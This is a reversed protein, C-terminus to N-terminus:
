SVWRSAAAGVLDGVAEVAAGGDEWAREDLTALIGDAGADIVEAVSVPAPPGLVAGRWLLAAGGGEWEPRNLARRWSSVREPTGGVVVADVPGLLEGVVLDGSAALGLTDEDLEVLLLPGGPRLPGPRNPAGRLQYWRGSFTSEKETFLARCVQAAEGLRALRVQPPDDGTGAGLSLAGRGKTLLDLATMDRALISPSRAGVVPARVGLTLSGSRRALGGALTCPDARRASPAAGSGSLWISGFGRRAAAAAAAM